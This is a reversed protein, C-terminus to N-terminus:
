VLRRSRHRYPLWGLDGRRNAHNIDLGADLLKTVQELDGAHVASMLVTGGYENEMDLPAGKEHLRWMLDFHQESAALTLPSENGDNTVAVLVLGNKHKSPFILLNVM